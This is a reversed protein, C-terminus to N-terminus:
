RVEKIKIQDLEGDDLEKSKQGVQILYRPDDPTKDLSDKGMDSDLFAVELDEHHDMFWAVWWSSSAKIFAPQDEAWTYVLTEGGYDLWFGNLRSSSVFTAVITKRDVVVKLSRDVVCPNGPLGMLCKMLEECATWVPVVAQAREKQTTDDWFKRNWDGGIEFRCPVGKYEVDYYSM